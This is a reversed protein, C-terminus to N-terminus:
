VDAQEKLLIDDISVARIALRNVIHKRSIRFFLDGNLESELRELSKGIPFRRDQFHLFTANDESSFFAIEPIPIKRLTRGASVLMSDIPHASIDPKLVNGLHEIKALTADLKAEDIPKLLYDVAGHSFAPLAQDPYATTFVIVSSIKTERIARFVSGDRLEIDLFLFDPHTNETLYLKLKQASQLIVLVVFGRDELLKSLRQGSPIEDEVIVATKSM